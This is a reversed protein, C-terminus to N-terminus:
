GSTVKLFLKLEFIASKALNKASKPRKQGKRALGM